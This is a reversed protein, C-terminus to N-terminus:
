PESGMFTTVAPARGRVIGNAEVWQHLLWDEHNEQRIREAMAPDVIDGPNLGHMAANHRELAPRFGPFVPQLTDSLAKWVEAMRNSSGVFTYNTAIFAATEAFSDVNAIQRCLGNPFSLGQEVCLEYFYAFDRDGVRSSLRPLWDPSRKMLMFLSAAREVPDRTISFALHPRALLGAQQADQYSFHGGVYFPREGGAFPACRETLAVADDVVVYRDGLEPIAPPYFCSHVTSGATRPVHIFIIM